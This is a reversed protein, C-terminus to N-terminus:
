LFYSFSIPSLLACMIRVLCNILRKLFMREVLGLESKNNELIIWFYLKDLEDTPRANRVSLRRTFNATFQIFRTHTITCRLQATKKQKKVINYIKWCPTRFNRVMVPILPKRQTALKM